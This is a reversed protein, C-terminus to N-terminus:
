KKNYFYWNFGGEPSKQQEPSRLWFLFVSVLPLSDHSNNNKGNFLWRQLHFDIQCSTFDECVLDNFELWTEWRRTFCVKVQFFFVIKEQNQYQQFSRPSYLHVVWSLVLLPRTLRLPYFVFVMLETVSWSFRKEPTQNLAYHLTSFSLLSTLFSSLWTQITM